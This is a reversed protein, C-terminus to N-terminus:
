RNKRLDREAFGLGALRAVVYDDLNAGRPHASEPSSIQGLRDVSVQEAKIM